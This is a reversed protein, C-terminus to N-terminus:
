FVNDVNFFLINTSAANVSVPCFVELLQVEYTLDLVM